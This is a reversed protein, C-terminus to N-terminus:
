KYKETLVIRTIFFDHCNFRFGYKKSIMVFRDEKEPLATIFGKVRKHIILNSTGDFEVEVTDGLELKNNVNM